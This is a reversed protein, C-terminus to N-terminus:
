RTEHALEDSLTHALREVFDNMTMTALRHLLGRDFVAGLAGLPPDYTANLTLRTVGDGAPEVHLTGEMKPFIPPGGVANWSVPLMVRDKRFDDPSQGIQLRVHKYVPIGALKVGVRALHKRGDGDLVVSWSHTSATLARAVSESAYPLTVTGQALV